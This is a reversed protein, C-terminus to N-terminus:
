LCDNTFNGKSLVQYYLWGKGVIKVHLALINQPNLTHLSDVCGRPLLSRHEQKSSKDVIVYQFDYPLLNELILPEYISITLEPYGSKSGASFAASLQFMFDPTSPDPSRCIM